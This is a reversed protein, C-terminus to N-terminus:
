CTAHCSSRPDVLALINTATCVCGAQEELDSQFSKNAEDKDGASKANM